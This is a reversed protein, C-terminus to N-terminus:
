LAPTQRLIAPVPADDRVMDWWAQAAIAAAAQTAYAIDHDPGMEEGLYRSHIALFTQYLGGEPLPPLEAPGQALRRLFLPEMAHEYDRHDQLDGPFALNHPYTFADLLYHTVKGLRYCALVSPEKTEALKSLLTRLPPLLNPYHHGRFRQGHLSGRLYTTVNLDPEVCGFLFAAREAPTLPGLATEELYIGFQHHSQSTM